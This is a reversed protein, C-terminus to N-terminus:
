VGQGFAAGEDVDGADLAEAREIHLAFLHGVEEAVDEGEGGVAAEFLYRCGQQRAIDLLEDGVAAVVAKNSTVVSKGTVQLSSFAFGTNFDKGPHFDSILPM